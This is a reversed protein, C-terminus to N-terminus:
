CREEFAVKQKSMKKKNRRIKKFSYIYVIQLAEISYAVNQNRIEIHKNLIKFIASMEQEDELTNPMSKYIFEDITITRM